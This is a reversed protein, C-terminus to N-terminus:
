ISWERDARSGRMVDGFVLRDVPATSSIRASSSVRVAFELVSPLLQLGVPEGAV